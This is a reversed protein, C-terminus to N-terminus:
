SYLFRGLSKREENLFCLRSGTKIQVKASEYMKYTPYMKSIVFSKLSAFISLPARKAESMNEYLVCVVKFKLFSENVM